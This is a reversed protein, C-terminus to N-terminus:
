FNEETEVLLVLRDARAVGLLVGHINRGVDCLSVMTLEDGIWCALRPSCASFTYALPCWRIWASADVSRASSGVWVIVGGHAFSVDRQIPPPAGIARLATIQSPVAESCPTPSHGPCAPCIGSGLAHAPELKRTRVALSACGRAALRWSWRKLPKHTSFICMCARPSNDTQSPSPIAADEM